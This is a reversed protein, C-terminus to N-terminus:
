ETPPPAHLPARPVAKFCIPWESQAVGRHFNAWAESEARRREARMGGFVCAVALTIWLLTSLRFQFRPRFMAAM